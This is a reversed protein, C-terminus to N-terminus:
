EHTPTKRTIIITIDFDTSAQNRVKNMFQGLPEEITEFFTEPLIDMLEKTVTLRHGQEGKRVSITKTIREQGAAPQIYLQKQLGTFLKDALEAGANGRWKYCWDDIMQRLASEAEMGEAILAILAGVGQGAAPPPIPVAVIRKEGSLQKYGFETIKRWGYNEQLLQYEKRWDRGEQLREGKRLRDLLDADVNSEPIGKARCDALHQNDVGVAELVSICRNLEQARSTIKAWFATTGPEGKLTGKLMILRSRWKSLVDGLAANIFHPQEDPVPCFVGDQLHWLKNEM